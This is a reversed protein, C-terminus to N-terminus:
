PMFRSSDLADVASDFSGEGRRRDQWEFGNREFSPKRASSEEADLTPTLGVQLQMALADPCDDHPARPFRLLEDVLHFMGGELGPRDCSKSKIWIRRNEFYPQLALIRLQKSTRTNIPLEDLFPFVNRRRCEAVFFHKLVKEYKEGEMGIKIPHHRSHVDFITAITQHPDMHDRLVELVFIRGDRAWGCTLFVTYDSTEKEGVAPDITTFISLDSLTIANRPVGPPIQNRAKPIFSYYCINEPKFPAEESPTPNMRYQSNSSAYGWVVYNSTTTVLAYVPQVGLSKVSTVKDSRKPVQSQYSLSYRSKKVTRGLVNSDMIQQAKAPHGNNILDVKMQRGGRLTFCHVPSWAPNTRQAVHETFPIGLRALTDRLKVVVPMNCEAQMIQINRHRCAGEGDVMGALWGWDLAANANPVTPDVVHVLNEGVRVPKYLKHSPDLRGTYWQHNDTCRAIRGSETGYELVEAQRSGVEQVIAPVLKTRGNAKREFGVVRDGVRVESIPKFTGDAMWVPSEAPTCSYIFSGQTRRIAKLSDVSYLGPLIPEAVVKCEQCIFDNIDVYIGTGCKPCRVDQHKILKVQPENAEIWGYLDEWHWRTGVIRRIFKKPDRLSISERYWTLVKDIQAPTATNEDNVIDDYIIHTYHASVLNGGMGVATLTPETATIDRLVTLEEETWKDAIPKGSADYPRFEPFLEAFKSNAGRGELHDSIARLFGKSNRLIANALLIRCRGETTIIVWLAYSITCLTTKLHGRPIEAMAEPTTAEDQWLDAIPKHIQEDLDKYGLVNKALYFLSAKCLQRELEHKMARLQQINKAAPLLTADPM